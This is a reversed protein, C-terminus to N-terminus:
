LYIGGAQIRELRGFISIMSIAGKELTGLGAAGQAFGAEEPGKLGLDVVGDDRVLQEVSSVPNGDPCRSPLVGRDQRM